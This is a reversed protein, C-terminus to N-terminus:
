LQKTFQNLHILFIQECHEFTYVCVCVCVCVTAKHIPEFSDFRNM